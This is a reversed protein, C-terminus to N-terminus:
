MISATAHIIFCLRNPTTLLTNCAAYRSIRNKCVCVTSKVPLHLTVTRLRLRHDKQPRSEHNMLWVTLRVCASWTARTLETSVFCRIRYADKKDVFNSASLETGNVTANSVYSFAKRIMLMVKLTWFDLSNEGLKTRWFKHFSVCLSKHYWM